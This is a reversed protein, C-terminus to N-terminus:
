ATSEGDGYLAVTDAACITLRNDGKTLSPVLREASEKCFAIAAPNDELSSRPREDIGTGGEGALM